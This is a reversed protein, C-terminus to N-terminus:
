DTGFNSTQAMQMVTYRCGACDCGLQDIALDGVADSDFDLPAEQCSCGSAEIPSRESTLSQPNVYGAYMPSTSTSIGPPAFEARVPQSLLVVMSFSSCGFLTLATQKM